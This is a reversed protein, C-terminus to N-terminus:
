NIKNWSQGDEGPEASDLILAVLATRCAAFPIRIEPTLSIIFPHPDWRHDRHPDVPVLQRELPHSDMPPTAITVLTTIDSRPFPSRGTPLSPPLPTRQSPLLVFRRRNTFCSRCLPLFRADVVFLWPNPLSQVLQRLFMRSRDM